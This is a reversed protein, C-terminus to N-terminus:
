PAGEDDVDYGLVRLRRYELARGAVEHALRRALLYLRHTTHERGKDGEDDEVEVLISLRVRRSNSM